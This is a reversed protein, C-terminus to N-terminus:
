RIGGHVHFPPRAEAPRVARAEEEELVLVRPTVLMLRRMTQTAATNRFLRSVYPVKNLVPTAHVRTETHTGCDVVLTHGSPLRAHRASRLVRVADRGDKAVLLSVSRRDGSVVTRFVHGVDQGLSVRATQGSFLTLKPAHLITSDTDSQVAEVLRKMEDHPLVTEGSEDLQPPTLAARAIAHGDDTQLIDVGLGGREFVTDSVLVHRIELTTQVDYLRRIQKFLAAIEDHVDPTARIVLSLNSRVVQMSNPGNPEWSDPSITSRVVETLTDFDPAPTPPEDIGVATRREDHDIGLTVTEPIPVVLDAVPYVRTQLAHRRRSAVAAEWTRPAEHVEDGGLNAPELALQRQMLRVVGVSGHRKELSDVLERAADVRGSDVLTEFREVARRLSRRAKKGGALSTSEVSTLVVVGMILLSLVRQM